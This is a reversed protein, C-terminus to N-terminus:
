RMLAPCQFLNCFFPAPGAGKEGIEAYPEPCIGGRGGAGGLRPIGQCSLCSAQQGQPLPLAGGGRLLGAAVQDWRATEREGGHLSVMGGSWWLERQPGDLMSWLAGKREQRSVLFRLVPPLLMLLPVCLGLGILVIGLAYLWEATGERPISTGVSIGTLIGTLLVFPGLVSM